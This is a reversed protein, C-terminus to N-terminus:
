MTRADIAVFSFIIKGKVSSWVERGGDQQTIWYPSIVHPVFV